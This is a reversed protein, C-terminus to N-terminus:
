GELLLDLSSGLLSCLARGTFLVHHAILLEAIYALRAQGKALRHVSRQAAKVDALADDELWVRHHAHSQCDCGYHPQPYRLAEHERPGPRGATNAEGDAVAEALEQGADNPVCRVDYAAVM